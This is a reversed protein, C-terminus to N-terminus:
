KELKERIATRVFDTISVYCEQNQLMHEDIRRVLGLPLPIQKYKRKM